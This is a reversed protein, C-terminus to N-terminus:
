GILGSGDCISVQDRLWGGSEDPRYKVLAIVQGARVVRVKPYASGPYGAREVVDGAQLGQFHHRSLEVPDGVEGKAGSVYDTIGM